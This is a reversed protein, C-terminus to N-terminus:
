GASASGAIGSFVQNNDRYIAYTSDENISNTGLTGGCGVLVLEDPREVPLKRLLLPDVVSFVATNAGIALALTIVATATFGPSKGLTRVGYRVDRWIGSM